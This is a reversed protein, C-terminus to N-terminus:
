RPRPKLVSDQNCIIFDYEGELKRCIHKPNYIGINLKPQTRLIKKALVNPDEDDLASGRKRRDWGCHFMFVARKLWSKPWERYQEFEEAHPAAGAGGADIGRENLQRKVEEMLHSKGSNPWGYVGIFLPREKTEMIRRVIEKVGDAFGMESTLRDVAPERAAAKCDKAGLVRKQRM